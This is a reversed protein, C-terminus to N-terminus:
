DGFGFGLPSALFDPTAHGAISTALELPLAVLSRYAAARGAAAIEASGDLDITHAAASLNAIDVLFVGIEDRNDHPQQILLADITPQGSIDNNDAQIRAKCGVDVTNSDWSFYGLVLTDILQSPTVSVTQATTAYDTGSLDTGAETYAAAANKFLSLNIAFLQSHTRGRDRAPPLSSRVETFTQAVAGLAKYVRAMTLVKRGESPSAGDEGEEIRRPLSSAFTGTSVIKSEYSISISV